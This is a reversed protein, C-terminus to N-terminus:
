FQGNVAGGFHFMRRGLLEFTRKDKGNYLIPMCHIKRAFFSTGNAKYVRKLTAEDDIVVAAIEM